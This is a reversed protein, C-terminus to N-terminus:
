ASAAAEGDSSGPGGDPPLRLTLAELRPLAARVANRVNAVDFSGSFRLLLVYCSAYSCLYAHGMRDSLSTDLHGGRALSIGARQAAHHVFDVLEDRPLNNFGRAACWVNDWADLVYANFAKATGAM